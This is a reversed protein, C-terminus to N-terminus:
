EYLPSLSERSADGNCPYYMNYLDSIRDIHLIGSSTTIAKVASKLINHLITSANELDWHERGRGHTKYKKMRAFLLANEFANLQQTHSPLAYLRNQKKNNPEQTKKISQYPISIIYHGSCRFFVSFFTSTAFHLGWFSPFALMIIFKGLPHNKNKKWLIMVQNSKPFKNLFTSFPMDKTGGRWRCHWM